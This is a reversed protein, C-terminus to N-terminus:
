NYTIKYLVFMLNYLIKMCHYLYIKTLFATNKRYKKAKVKFTKFLNIIYFIILQTYFVSNRANTDNNNLFIHFFCEFFNFSLKLNQCLIACM